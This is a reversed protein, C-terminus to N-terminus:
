PVRLKMVMSVFARWQVRNQALRIWNAGDIETERLDLKINEEWRRTPRELWFGTFV